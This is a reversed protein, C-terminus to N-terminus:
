LFISWRQRVGDQRSLQRMYGAPSIHPLLSTAARETAKSDGHGRVSRGLSELTVIGSTSSMAEERVPNLSSYVARLTWSIESRRGDWRRPFPGTHLLAVQV